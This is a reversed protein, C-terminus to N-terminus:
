LLIGVVLQARVGERAAVLGENMLMDDVRKRCLAGQWRSHWPSRSRRGYMGPARRHSLRKRQVARNDDAQKAFM